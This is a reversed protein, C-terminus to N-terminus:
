CAGPQVATRPDERPAALRPGPGQRLGGGGGALRQPKPRPQGDPQAAPQRRTGQTLLDLANRRFSPKIRLLSHSCRRPTAAAAAAAAPQGAASWIDICQVTNVSGLQQQQPQTM